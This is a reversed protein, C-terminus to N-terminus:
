RVIGRTVGGLFELLMGLDAASDGAAERSQTALEGRAEELGLGRKYLTKYARRLAQIRSADFGRRRLGESNLGHANAPTGSAMVYPPLDHLVVTGVGTMAHAGIKCFQHVGTFGGLIVWDGLEVHGALNTTNALITHSGVICDHAIHVYAMVWNDDGVDTRGRDQVTGRNITVYERFTNGNGIVLATPEGAYKKDQPPGGITGFPHLVNDRGITTGAGVVCHAGVSTGAAIRVGPEIIAYPGVRVTSDLEAGPDVIASPHILPAGSM